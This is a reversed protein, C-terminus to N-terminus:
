REKLTKRAYDNPLNLTILAAKVCDDEPMNGEKLRYHFNLSLIPTIGDPVSANVVVKSINGNYDLIGNGETYQETEQTIPLTFNVDLGNREIVEFRMGPQILAELPKTLDFSKFRGPYANFKRAAIKKGSHSYLNLAAESYFFNMSEFEIPYAAQKEQKPARCEEIQQEFTKPASVCATALTILGGAALPLFERRTLGAM